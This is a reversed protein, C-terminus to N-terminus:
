DALAAAYRQAREAAKTGAYKEALKALTKAHADLKGKGALKELEKSLAEDAEIEAQMGDAELRGRQEALKTTLEECGKFVKDLEDLSDIAKAFSGDSIMRSVRDIRAQARQLFAQEASKAAEALEPKEASLERAREIAKAVDGKAFEKWAKDLEKPTGEPPEDRLKVQEEIAEEIKQKLALPNGSLLVEGDRSLLVCAPLGQGPAPLPREVTWMAGHGIWKRGLAFEEAQELTSGQCEVFVVALEDEYEDKLKISAPM